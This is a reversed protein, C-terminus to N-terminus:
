SARANLALETFFSEPNPGIFTALKKLSYKQIVAHLLQCFLVPISRRQHSELWQRDGSAIACVGNLVFVIGVNVFINMDRKERIM